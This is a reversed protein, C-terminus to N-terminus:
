EIIIIKYYLANETICKCNFNNLLVLRHDELLFQMAHKGYFLKTLDRKVTTKKKM